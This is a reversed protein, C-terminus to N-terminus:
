LLKARIEEKIASRSQHPHIKPSPYEGFTNTYFIDEKDEVNKM